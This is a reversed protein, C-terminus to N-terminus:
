YRVDYRFTAKPYKALVKTVHDQMVLAHGKGKVFEDVLAHGGAVDGTAKIRGVRQLLKEVTVPLKAFDITFQGDKFTLAGDRMCSGVIVAALQSYPQVNGSPTFMGRSIHGFAWSIEDVYAQRVREETLLGKAKLLQLYWMGGVQAKMEELTSALGGPFTQKSGKGAVQYDTFPGFNHTAEHLIIGMLFIEHEPSYHAMTAPSLLERAQAESIRRSDPDTYLNAMVVTRGRGEQVVKGWNPLSQGITGGIPHRADGSNLVVDIFDPMHFKVDRAAYPPGILAAIRQEMETRIKSLREQWVLSGQNIKALAVAFGAKQQCPDFYVEDPAVRLYWKSNQANMAAWAEDAQSWDNTDFGLAAAILYKALPQEQPDKAAIAAAARLRKAVAKMPAGWAATLPKAAYAAGERRVVTFPALLDKANPQSQLLRCMSEDNPLDEPYAESRQPPFTPVANCHPNGVSLPGSCWPGHNRWMLTRGAADVGKAKLHHYGGTQRLYLEEVMESVAVLEKVLARDAPSAGSFDTTVLTPRAYDLERLVSERRRLEVLQKYEAAFAPTLKGGVVYKALTQGAGAAALEDAEVLGNGNRDELWVLPSAAQAALRNFDARDLAPLGFQMPAAPGGSTAARAAFAALALVLAGLVARAITSRM